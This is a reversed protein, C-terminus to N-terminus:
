RGGLARRPTAAGGHVRVAGRGEDIASRSREGGDVVAAVQYTYTTDTTAEAHTYSLGAINEAVIEVTSGYSRTITYTVDPARAWHSADVATWTFDVQTQGAPLNTAATVTLKPGARLQYGFEQWTARGDGDADVVLAPYQRSTGFHWPVNGSGAGGLDVNWDHYVGSYETPAQLAVTTLGRGLEGSSHGSTDTDWYSSTIPGISHGM